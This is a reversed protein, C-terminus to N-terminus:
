GAVDALDPLKRERAVFWLPQGDEDPMPAISVDVRYSSGDKHYNVLTERCARRARVSERIRAVAAPDTEQGQLLHGPKRGKLEALTFGCMTTFAPNVWEICGAVDTVVLCIPDPRAPLHDVAGLLRAKLEKPPRELSPAAAMVLGAVSDEMGAVLARLDARWELIVEFSARDAATMAGSVYRVAQDQLHEALM